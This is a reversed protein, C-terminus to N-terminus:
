GGALDARWIQPGGGSERHIPRFGLNHFFNSVQGRLGYMLYTLAYLFLGLAWLLMGERKRSGIPVLTAVSIALALSVTVALLYMTPTHAYMRPKKHSLFPSAKRWEMTVVPAGLSPGMEALTFFEGRLARCALRFTDPGQNQHSPWMAGLAASPSLGPPSFGGVTHSPALQESPTRIVM